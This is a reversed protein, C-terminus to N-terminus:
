ERRNKTETHTHTHVQTHIHTHTHVQTHIHTHTYRHTCTSTHHQDPTWSAASLAMRTSMIINARSWLGGAATTRMEPSRSKTYAHEASCFRPNAAEEGWDLSGHVQQGGYM